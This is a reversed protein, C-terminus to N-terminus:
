PIMLRVVAGGLRSGNTVELYGRDGNNEHLHLIQQAFFLGLGFGSHSVPSTNNDINTLNELIYDPLGPGDDEICIQICNNDSQQASLLIHSANAQLANYIFTDLVNLIFTDDLFAILDIECEIGIQLKDVACALHRSRVERLLQNVNIEEINPQYGIENKKYLILVQSLQNSINRIENSVKDQLHISHDDDPLSAIIENMVFVLKGFNNKVEHISSALLLSLSNHPAQPIELSANTQSKSDM